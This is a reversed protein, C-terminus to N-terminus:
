KLLIVREFNKFHTDKTLLYAQEELATALIIADALSFDKQTAKARNYLSGFNLIMKEGIGFVRSKAKIFDFVREFEWQEHEAKYSLELLVISPTILTNSSVHEAVRKGLASGLFYEMWASTDIVLLTM